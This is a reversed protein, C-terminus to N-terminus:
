GSGQMHIGHAILHRLREPEAPKVIFYDIGAEKARGRDAMDSRGTIAIVIANPLVARIQRAVEIGDLGPLGLDLLLVHPEYESAMNLANQGDFAYRAQYGWTALMTCAALCTDLDDEVILVRHPDFM